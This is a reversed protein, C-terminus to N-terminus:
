EEPGADVPDLAVLAQVQTLIMGDTIVAPDKGPEPNGSAVASAWAADWGPAAAINLMRDATWLWPNGPQEQAASAQVRQILQNDVAMSAIDWYM